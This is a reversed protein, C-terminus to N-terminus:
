FIVVKKDNRAKQILEKERRDILTTKRQNLIIDRIRDKCLELPLMEGPKIVNLLKFYNYFVQGDETSSYPFVVGIRSRKINGYYFGKAIREIEADTTFASDLRYELANDKAWTALEDIKAPDNSRIPANIKYYENTNDVKIHFFSFYNAKSRFKDPNKEYYNRIEEESVRANLERNILYETFEHNVLQTKFNKLKFEIRQDLNSIVTGAEEAVAQSTLWDETYTESFRVSDEGFMGDPLHYDIEERLLLQNKYRAIIEEKASRDGDGCAALALLITMGLVLFFPKNSYIPLYM